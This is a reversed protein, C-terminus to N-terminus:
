RELSRSELYKRILFNSLATIHRPVNQLEDWKLGLEEWSGETWHCYPAIRELEKRIEARVEDSEPRVHAVVRDLLRSMSRIGVGGMLRSETAPLGWADPFLDKVAGWYAVLLHRIAETDTNGSSYNRYAFLAGSPSELSERLAEVLGNDKVRTKTDGTETSARRILGFFPSAPDQNLMDVLASPLKRTALRPSPAAVIEPLLETVLSSPLPKVTNVRLFQDRQLDLSPAVFGAVLVPLRTHRTQALALSRQQGDVIWAPRPANPDTPLSIELTGSTALGDTTAPGRSSRFKVTDPLALIVANPFLVEDSDLYALIQKVHQRTEPRQYGILKGAEDRSIRAVDAVQALEEAALAFVYLPVQESQHIKLARRELVFGDSM